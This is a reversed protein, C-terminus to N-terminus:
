QSQWAQLPKCWQHAPQIDSQCATPLLELGVQKGKNSLGKVVSTLVQWGILLVAIELATRIGLEWLPMAIAEARLRAFAAESLSPDAGPAIDPLFLKALVLPKAAAPTARSRCPLTHILQQLLKLQAAPAETSMLPASYLPRLCKTGSSLSVTSPASSLLQVYCAVVRM